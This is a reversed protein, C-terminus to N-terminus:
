FQFYIFTSSSEQSLILLILMASWILGLLWWPMKNAVTLVRTNRMFWNFIVMGIVIVSVKIIDLNSLLTAGKPMHSFM